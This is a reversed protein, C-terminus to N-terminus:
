SRTALPGRAYYLCSRKSSASTVNAPDKHPERRLLQLLQPEREMWVLEALTARLKHLQKLLLNGLHENNLSHITLLLTSHTNAAAHFSSSARSPSYLVYGATGVTPPVSFRSLLFRIEKM